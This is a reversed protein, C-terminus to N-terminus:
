FAVFEAETKLNLCFNKIKFFKLDKCSTGFVHSTIYSDFNSKSACFAFLSVVVCCFVFSVIRVSKLESFVAFEAAFVCRM